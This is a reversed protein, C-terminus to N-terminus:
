EEDLLALLEETTPKLKHCTHKCHLNHCEEVGRCRWARYGDVIVCKFAFAGFIGVLVATSIKELM